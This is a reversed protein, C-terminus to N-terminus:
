FSSQENQAAIPSHSALMAKMFTCHAGPLTKFKKSSKINVTIVNKWIM